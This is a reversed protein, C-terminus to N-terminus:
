AINVDMGKVEIVVFVYTCPHTKHRLGVHIGQLTRGKHGDAGRIARCGRM